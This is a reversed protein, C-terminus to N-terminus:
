VEILETKYNNRELFNKVKTIKSLSTYRTAENFQSYYIHRKKSFQLVYYIVRYNEDEKWFKIITPKCKDNFNSFEKYLHRAVERAQRKRLKGDLLRYQKYEETDCEWYGNKTSALYEYRIKDRLKEYNDYLICAKSNKNYCGWSGGLYKLFKGYKTNTGGHFNGYYFDLLIQTQLEEKTKFNENLYCNWKSYYRPYVNNCASTVEAYWFGLESKKIAISRVIEYSM